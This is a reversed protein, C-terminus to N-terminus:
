ATPPERALSGQRYHDGGDESPVADCADVRVDPLQASVKPFAARGAREDGRERPAPCEGSGNEAEAREYQISAARRCANGPIQVPM